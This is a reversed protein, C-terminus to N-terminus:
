EGFIRAVLQQPPQTLAEEIRTQSDAHIALRHYAEQRSDPHDRLLQAVKEMASRASQGYVTQARTMAAPAHAPWELGAVLLDFFDRFRLAPDMGRDANALLKTAMLDVPGLAAVGAVRPGPSFPALYGERIVECKVPRQGDQLDIFFRIADRTRWLEGALMVSPQCLAAPGDAFVAAHIRHYGAPHNCLFDVDVSERYERIQLALCTGGGFFAHNEELFGTHLLQLVQHVRRHHPREFM